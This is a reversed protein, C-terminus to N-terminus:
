KALLELEAVATPGSGDLTLRYHAYSGPTAIAFGRTQRHWPFTEDHREDLMQWRKGDASGELKWGTPAAASAGSTITYMSVTAPAALRDVVVAKGTPLALETGSDNDVAAALTSAKKGDLTLDAAKMVDHLPAPKAGEATISAPLADAGTGWNSPASGMTFELTAGKALLEHPLTLKNWPQGNVKLSQVFRNTDSVGPARIDITAGSELRITMHPFYPAGIVYEPTGMRLPYFGTAGFIWWASMEGNDEDGPYGQGIESGVYLRSMADRQKDQTKWPQGAEDYMWIIHHSPQNSHGYQGMRVDRAELMEHIEGGYDGVDYNGPASFFADLKEGLKERGGYLGALGAGDQPADFTMNWANTETYDGGWRIPSFDKATWRWKGAKDRAVFFGVEPEFLNAYGVARARYWAADDAYNKYGGCHASDKALAEALNAIGFDNIYGATSWSLGEKVDDDTYGNFLSREIGKRGAGKVDTSVTSANRIASLYFNAVDFNRVGKLWADAFAVDSSTGVMLDAYGPSTWRAIWGGDRYQQVFGDVMEGAETPTFLTYAPWATRYTDWLGNNVYPKGDVIRAGTHTDTNEGTAASFPSAYQWKPADKTGTNEYAKNPYLFLRYLNSYLITKEDRSAGEVQFRGLRDDWAKRARERVSDFTDNAAVEQSLNAKAQDVGILSTAIRMTVQKGGKKTTDFGFWASAADRKEGTLRGSEAVPKDFEAYFFLRTAGTSLGSKVDSWGQISRGAPDLTVSAKDNLNDFVLQARKGTFTFRFVAAHDTPTIETRIGNDFHVGYYDPHATEEDHTFSLARTERKLAPAGSEVQAPMVQFTQREGMWPSPEHSLSFAQIRPRNDDGNNEQYQYLWNSGAQTVPTWFNFGHPTAVAPFNNGRSFNPNANSGRRTDVYDTPHTSTFAPQVGIRIDDVWGEFAKGAPADASLEISKVKRGKAVAGLDVSVYNWQDPYLVRGTGQGKATAPVRHQDVAGNTSLKSGDDFVVDVSVYNAPNALDGKNSRPFVLWSLTTNDVVPVSADFLRATLASGTSTGAYHLSHTGTFGVDAKATLVADKPPGGAIQVDLGGFPASSLAPDGAEFSSHFGPPTAALVGAPVMISAIALALAARSWGLKTEAV